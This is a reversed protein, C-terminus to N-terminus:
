CKSSISFADSGAGRQHLVLKPAAVRTGLSIIGSVLAVRTHYGGKLTRRSSAASGKGM